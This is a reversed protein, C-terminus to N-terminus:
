NAETRKLKRGNEMNEPTVGEKSAFSSTKDLYFKTIYGCTLAITIRWDLAIGTWVGLLFQILLNELTTIIAWFFYKGFEKGTKKLSEQSKRFVFYKDLFFKIIYTIGVAVVSGVIEPMNYPSESLYIAQFFPSPPLVAKLAPYIVALHLNQLGINLLIMLRAFAFYTIGQYVVSDLFSKRQPEAPPGEMLHLPAWGMQIEWM